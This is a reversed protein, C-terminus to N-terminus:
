EVLNIVLVKQMKSYRLRVSLGKLDARNAYRGCHPHDASRIIFDKGDNWDKLVADKSRYDRGYAPSLTIYM